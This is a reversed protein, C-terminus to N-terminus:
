SHGAGQPLQAHAGVEVQQLFTVAAVLVGPGDKGVRTGPGAGRVPRQRVAVWGAAVVWVVRAGAM